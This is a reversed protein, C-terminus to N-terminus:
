NNIVPIQGIAWITLQVQYDLLESGSNSVTIPKRYNWTTLWNIMISKDGKNSKIIQHKRIKYRNQPKHWNDNNITKIQDIKYLHSFPM